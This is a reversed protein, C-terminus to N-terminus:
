EDDNASENIWSICRSPHTDKLEDKKRVPVSPWRCWEDGSLASEASVLCSELLDGSIGHDALSAEISQHERFPELDYDAQAAAYGKIWEGTDDIPPLLNDPKGNGKYFAWGDPWRDQESM